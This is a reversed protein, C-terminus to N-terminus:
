NLKRGRAKELAEKEEKTLSNASKGLTISKAYVRTGSRSHMSSILFGTDQGNLIAVVFSQDGGAEEFPNFRILSTKQYFDQSKKQLDVLNKSIESIHKSETEQKDILRGMIQELNQGNTGQTLKKLRSVAKYLYISLFISYLTLAALLFFILNLQENQM